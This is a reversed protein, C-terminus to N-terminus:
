FAPVQALDGAVVQIPVRLLFVSEGQSPVVQATLIYDQEISPTRITLSLERLSKQEKEKGDVQVTGASQLDFAVKFEKVGNPEVQVGAHKGGNGVAGDAGDLDALREEQGRLDELVTQPVEDVGGLALTLVVRDVAYPKSKKSDYALTLILPLSAAHRAVQASDPM